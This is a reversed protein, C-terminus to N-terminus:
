SAPYYCALTQHCSFAACRSDQLDGTEQSVHDHDQDNTQCPRRVLPALQEWVHCFMKDWVRVDLRSCPLWVNAEYGPSSVTEPRVEFCPDEDSLHPSKDACARDGRRCTAVDTQSRAFVESLSMM